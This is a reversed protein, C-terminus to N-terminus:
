ITTEAASRIIPLTVKMTCGKGPASLIEASGKFIRARSTINNLGIGNRKENMNFGNGNDRITFITNTFTQELCIWVKTAGAHKIINNLQEQAIRYLALKQDMNIPSQYSQHSFCIELGSSAGVMQILGEVADVLSRTGLTPASLERSLNRIDEVSSKLLSICKPLVEEYALQKSLAMELYLKTTTLVQNVNDHLEHGIVEREREQAAIVQETLQQQYREEDVKQRDATKKKHAVILMMLISSVIIFISIIFTSSLDRKVRRYYDKLVDQQSTGVTAIIPYESFQRYSFYTPIGRIADRAFYYGNRSTKLQVFLPSKSIDEGSTETPGTRRAYTIGDPSILSIIDNERLNARAYFSTFVSPEIQVAVVGGFSGDLENIRRSIVIVTKGITKSLLPKSIYLEDSDKEKHHQFYDRESFTLATDNTTTINAKILGGDKDILTIGKFIDNNVANNFLLKALDISRGKTAYEIKLLQLLADANHITRITYQQLAIALNNNRQVAAAVTEEKDRAKQTFYNTWILLLIILCLTLIAWSLRGTGGKSDKM